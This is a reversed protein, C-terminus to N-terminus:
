EEDKKRKNNVLLGVVAAAGIVIGGTALAQGTGPTIEPLWGKKDSNFFDIKITEVPDGYKEGDLYIYVKYENGSGEIQMSNDEDNFKKVFDAWTEESIAADEGITRVGNELKGLAEMNKKYQEYITNKDIMHPANIKGDELIEYTVDIKTLGGVPNFGEPAETVDKITVIVNNGEYKVDYCTNFDSYLSEGTEFFSEIGKVDIKTKDWEVVVDYVENNKNVKVIIHGQQLTEVIQTQGESFVINNLTEKEAAFSDVKAFGMGVVLLGAVLLSKIKKNM